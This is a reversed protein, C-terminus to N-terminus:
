LVNITYKINKRRTKRAEIVDETPKYKNHKNQILRRCRTITEVSINLERCDNISVAGLYECCKLFLLNDSGRTDEHKSLVFEVFSKTNVFEMLVDAM